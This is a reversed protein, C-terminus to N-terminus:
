ASFAPPNSANITDVRAVVRNLLQHVLVRAINARATAAIMVCYDGAAFKSGKIVFRAMPGDRHPHCPLLSPLLTNTHM